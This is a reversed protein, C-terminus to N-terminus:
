ESDTEPILDIYLYVSESIGDPDPEIYKAFDAIQDPHEILMSAFLAHLADEAMGGSGAVDDFWGSSTHFEDKAAEYAEKWTIAHWVPIALTEPASSGQFYGPLCCDRYIARISTVDCQKPYDNM